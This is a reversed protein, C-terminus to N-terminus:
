SLSLSPLRWIAYLPIIFISRTIQHATKDTDSIELIGFNELSSRIGTTLDKKNMFLRLSKMKGSTGAKVEIPLCMANKAIVYEVESTANRELSEWYFLDFRSQPNSSKILELGVTLETVIGKNVLDLDDGALILRTLEKDDDYSMALVRLLLGTDLYDYRTFKPNVQAGLPLGNASSMQVPIIIGADRLLRLAEKVEEIRYGGDVRSYVFKQGSQRVVAALTNRLLQPDVKKAYKAFDDYYSQQIDNQEDQCASYDGTEIWAAVSAPMGGVMLFSRFESVLRSHLSEEMPHTWDAKTIEDVWMVKGQAILFEKFSMPYMFVSRVRGVGYSPMENLAFELLSGAAVVHLDPYNEKFFWLSKLAAPCNQIEDIFLLTEGPIVPINHITGLRQSLDRVDTIEEFLRRLDKEQELNIELYYKFSEGLHRISMSKGVQRAGRVLLPKRRPSDRWKLLESDIDRVFYTM